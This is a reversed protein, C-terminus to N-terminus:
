RCSTGTVTSCSPRTRSRSACSSTSRAACTPWPRRIWIANERYVPAYGAAVLLDNRDRLPVDLTRALLLVMERSPQARGTEVFSLHRSSVGAEVSLDLQSLGRQARWQRLLRGFGSDATAAAPRNMGPVTCRARAAPVNGPLYNVPEM